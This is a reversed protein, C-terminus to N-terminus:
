RVNNIEQVKPSAVIPYGEQELYKKILINGYDGYYVLASNVTDAYESLKKLKGRITECQIKVKGSYCLQIYDFINEMKLYVETIAPADFNKFLQTTDIRRQKLGYQAHDFMKSVMYAEEIDDIKNELVVVCGYFRDFYTELKM